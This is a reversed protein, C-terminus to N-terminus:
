GKRMKYYVNPSVSVQETKSDCRKWRKKHFQNLLDSLCVCAHMAHVCETLAAPQIYKVLQCCIQDISIKIEQYLQM